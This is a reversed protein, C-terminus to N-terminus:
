TKQGRRLPWPWEYHEGVKSIFRDYAQHPGFGGTFNMEDIEKRKLDRLLAETTVGYKFTPVIWDVAFASGIHQELMLRPM